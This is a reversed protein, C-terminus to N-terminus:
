SQDALPIRYTIHTAADTQTNIVCLLVENKEQSPALTGSITKGWERLTHAANDYISLGMQFADTIDGDLYSQCILSEGSADWCMDIIDSKEAVIWTSLTPLNMVKLQTTTAENTVNDKNLVAMNGTQHHIRFSTGDTIQTVLSSAIDLAYVSSIGTTEDTKVFFISDQYYDLSCDDMSMATYSWSDALSGDQLTVAYLGLTEGDGTIGFLTSSSDHWVFSPTDYGFGIAEGDIVQQTQTDYIMLCRRVDMYDLFALYRGDSSYSAVSISSFEMEPLLSTADAGPKGIYLQEYVYDARSDVGPIISSKAFLYSEGDPCWALFRGDPILVDTAKPEGNQCVVEADAAISLSNDEAAHPLSNAPISVISALQGPLLKELTGQNASLYAQADQKTPFGESVLVTHSGDDCLAPSFHISNLASFSIMTDPCAVQIFWQPSAEMNTHSSDRHLYVRLQNGEEVVQYTVPESLHMYLVSSSGDPAAKTFIGLIPTNELMEADMFTSNQNVGHFNFALRCLDPYLSTSFTPVGSAFSGNADASGDLFSMAVVVDADYRSITISGIDAAGVDKGGGLSQTLDYFGTEADAPVTTADTPESVVATCGALSFLLVAILLCPWAKSFKRFM